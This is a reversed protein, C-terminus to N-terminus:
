KIVRTADSILDMSPKLGLSTAEKLNFVLEIMKPM